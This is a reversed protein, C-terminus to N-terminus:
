DIKIKKLASILWVLLLVRIIIPYNAPLIGAFFIAQVKLLQWTQHMNIDKGLIDSYYKSLMGIPQQLKASVRSIMDSITKGFSVGTTMTIIKEM